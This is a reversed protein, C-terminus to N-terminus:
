VNLLTHQFTLFQCLGAALHATSELYPVGVIADCYGRSRWFRGPNILLSVCAAPLTKISIGDNNICIAEM